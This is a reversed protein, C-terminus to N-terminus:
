AFGVLKCYCINLVDSVYRRNFHSVISLIWDKHTDISQESFLKLLCQLSCGSIVSNPLDLTHM